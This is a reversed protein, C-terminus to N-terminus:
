RRLAEEAVSADHGLGSRGADPQDADVVDAHGYGVEVGRDLEVLPHEAHAADVHLRAPLLPDPLGHHGDTRVRGAATHLEQRRQSRVRRDSPEEVAM